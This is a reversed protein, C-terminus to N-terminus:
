VQADCIGFYHDLWQVMRGRNLKAESLANRQLSYSLECTQSSNNCTDLSKLVCQQGPKFENWMEFTKKTILPVLTEKIFSLLPKPVYAIDVM